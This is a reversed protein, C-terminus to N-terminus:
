AEARRILVELRNRLGNSDYELRDALTRVLHLGVGGPAAQELNEPLPPPPASRPDFPRGDDEIALAIEEGTADVSIRIENTRQGEKGHNILNLVIEEVVLLLTYASKSDVANEAIFRDIEPVLRAFGSMEKEISLQLRNAM